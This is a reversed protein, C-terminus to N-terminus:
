GHPHARWRCTVHQVLHGAGREGGSPQTLQLARACPLQASVMIRNFSMGAAQRLTLTAQAQLAAIDGGCEDVDRAHKGCTINLRFQHMSDRPRPAHRLLLRKRPCGYGCAAVQREM